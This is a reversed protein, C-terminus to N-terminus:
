IRGAGGRRGQRRCHCRVPRKRECDRGRACNIVMVGPKMKEFADKDIMGVTNKLKPVHVTIYDARQYLTDIDVSEFGAKQIQEPTVFPDHIIVNM